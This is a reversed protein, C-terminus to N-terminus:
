ESQRVLQFVDDDSCSEPVCLAQNIGLHKMGLDELSVRESGGSAPESQTESAAENEIPFVDLTCFQGRADLCQDFAGLNAMTGELLASPSASSADVVEDDLSM